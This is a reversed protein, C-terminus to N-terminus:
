KRSTLETTIGKAILFEDASAPKALTFYCIPCENSYSQRRKKSTRLTLNQFKKKNIIGKKFGFVFIM